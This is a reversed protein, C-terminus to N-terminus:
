VHADEEQTLSAPWDAGAIALSSFLCDAFASRVVRRGLYRFRMFTAVM